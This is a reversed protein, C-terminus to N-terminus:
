SKAPAGDISNGNEFNGIAAADDSAIKNDAITLATINDQENMTLRARLEDVKQQHEASLAAMEADLQAKREAATGQVKAGELQLKQADTQGKIKDAEAKRQTEAMSAQLAAQSPDMVPRPALKKMLDMAQTIAPPVKDFISLAQKSVEGSAAALVKSLLRQVKPDSDFFQEIQDVGSTQRIMERFQEAYWFGMHQALHQLALPIFKPAIIPNQGFLPHTMFQMLVEIHALHDQDKFASAPQGELMRMNETVPNLEEPDPEGVLIEDLSPVKRLIRKLVGEVKFKDPFREAMALIMQDQVVRQTESFINPDSVPIVDMPGDYDERRVIMEGYDELVIQDDLHDRNLRHLVELVKEMSAHQRAHISSFVKSGQEILAQVTGVPMTNSADSIKEEATSVVGKAADTLWGLLQFLVPSPPNFPLPMLVKRIDDQMGTGEVESIQTPDISTSQGGARSKLKVAAAINNIHASDLLARLAGTLAGSMGGILHPLGIGYAGRWPIFQFEIIHDLKEFTEDAEAWNRYVALVKASHADISVVYPVPYDSNDAYSDEGELDLSTFVAHVIRLGDENYATEDKGEIKDTAKQAKTQEPAQGAVYNGIDRYFGSKMRNEFEMETLPQDWTVRQAAYFSGAAFPLHIFDIPIFEAKARKHQESWYLALYQSGGLPEQTLLQELEARFEKVQKTLQLNMHTRKRDAKDIKAKKDKGVIKSRVPGDPPFLEKMMSASFDVCCEALIPHVVKSAGDFQAGGPADKGLGTRRIGDEYQEDRKKRAEKDKEILDLYTRAIETLKSETITLALNEYFDPNEDVHSATDTVVASGDEMEEIDLPSADDQDDDEADLAALDANKVLGFTVGRNPKRTRESATREAM